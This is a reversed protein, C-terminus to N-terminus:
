AKLMAADAACPGTKQVTPAGGRGGGGCAWEGRTELACAWSLSPPTPPPPAAVKSCAPAGGPGKATCRGRTTQLAAGRLVFGGTTVNDFAPSILVDGADLRASVFGTPGDIRAKVNPSSAAVEWYPARGVAAYSGNAGLSAKALLTAGIAPLWWNGPAAAAVECKDRAFSAVIGTDGAAGAIREVYQLTGSPLMLELRLPTSAPISLPTLAEVSVAGRTSTLAVAARSAEDGTLRAGYKGDPSDSILVSLPACISVSVFPALSRAEADTPAGAVAAAAACLLIPRWM